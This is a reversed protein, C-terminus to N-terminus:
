VMGAMIEDLVQTLTPMGSVIVGEVTHKHARQALAPRHVANDYRFILTKNASQYHYAYTMRPESLTLDVFERFHLESGDEFLLMGAILGRVRSRPETELSVRVIRGATVFTNLLDTISQAYDYFDTAPM